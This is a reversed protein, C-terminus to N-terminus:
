KQQKSLLEKSWLMVRMCTEISFMGIHTYELDIGLHDSLMQYLEGREFYGRKHLKDFHTHAINKASRLKKDALRGLTTGNKHTGVYSDCQPWNKCAIIVHNKYTRGYVQLESLLKTGSKCYPCIKAHYIDDHLPSLNM